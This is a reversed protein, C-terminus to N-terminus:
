LKLETEACRTYSEPASGALFEIGFTRKYSRGGYQIIEVDSYQLDSFDRKAEEFLWIFKDLRSGYRDERFIVRVQQEQGKIPVYEKIVQSATM